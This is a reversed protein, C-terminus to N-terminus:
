RSSKRLKSGKKASYHSFRRNRLPPHSGGSVKRGAHSVEGSPWILSIQSWTQLGCLLISSFMFGLSTSAFYEDEGGERQGVLKGSSACLWLWPLHVRGWSDRYAKLRESCNCIGALDVMSKPPIYIPCYSYCDSCYFFCLNFCCTQLLSFRSRFGQDVWVINSLTQVLVRWQAQLCGDRNHCNVTM